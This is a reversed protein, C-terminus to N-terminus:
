GLNGMNGGGAGTMPPGGQFQPLQQGLQQMAPGAGPGHQPPMTQTIQYQQMLQQLMEPTLNNQPTLNWQSSLDTGGPVQQITPQAGIAGPTISYFGGGGPLQYQGAQEPSIVIFAPERSGWAQAFDEEGYINAPKPAPKDKEEGVSKGEKEAKEKDLFTQHAGAEAQGAVRNRRQWEAEGPRAASSVGEQPM